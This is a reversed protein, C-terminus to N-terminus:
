YSCDDIFDILWYAKEYNKEPRPYSVRLKSQEFNFPELIMDLFLASFAETKIKQFWSM